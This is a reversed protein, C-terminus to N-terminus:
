VVRGGIRLVRPLIQVESWQIRLGGSKRQAVLAHPPYRSEFGRIVAECATGQHWGPNGVVSVLPISGRTEHFLGQEEWQLVHASVLM